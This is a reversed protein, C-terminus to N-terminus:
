RLCILKETRTNNNEASEPLANNKDVTVTMLNVGPKLKLNAANPFWVYTVSAGPPKLKKTPDVGILRIGGWPQGERQMQLAVGQTKDYASDSVPGNGANKVTVQMQCGKILKLDSVTLDPRKAEGDVITARAEFVQINAENVCAQGSPYALVVSFSEMGEAVSDGIIEVDITGLSQDDGDPQFTLTKSLRGSNARFDQDSTATEGVTQYDVCVRVTKANCNPNGTPCTVPPYNFLVSVEFTAIIPAPGSDSVQGAPFIVVKPSQAFAVPPRALTALM